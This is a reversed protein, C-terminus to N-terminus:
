PTLVELDSYIEIKSNGPNSLFVIIEDSNDNDLDYFAFDYVPGFDSTTIKTSNKFDYNMGNGWYIRFYDGSNAGILLDLYGDQRTRVLEMVENSIRDSLLKGGFSNDFRTGVEILVSVEQGYAQKSGEGLETSVFTSLLIYPETAAALVSASDFVPVEQLDIVIAGSLREYLKQRILEGVDKM